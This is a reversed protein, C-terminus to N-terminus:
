GNLNIVNFLKLKNLTNQLALLALKPASSLKVSSFSGEEVFSEIQPTTGLIVLPTSIVM